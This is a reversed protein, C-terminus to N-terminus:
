RPDHEANDAAIWAKGRDVAEEVAAFLTAQAPVINEPGIRAALGSRELIRLLPPDAGALILRSDHADLREAIAEYAKVTTSSPVDPLARLSLVLVARRTDPGLRPWSENLRPVEAFLGVGAHFLVTVRRSPLETPVDCQRWRGGPEPELAVLRSVRAAQVCYLLLSLGAGLLIAQQLPLQTTALFTAIMAAASLPATRWVLAIDAARGTILEVGIVIVLGGIVPMPIQEALSGFLLVVVALSVGAFIGAWRTQAGASVAVGTRSLSGGTPLAQTLAGGMNAVGQAVFDRSVSTRSGDPNPVAAGIGAAQALAVLAVAFAGVALDPVASLDPAHPAPLANPISAIAGVLPVDLGSVAVLLTGVLLAILTGLARVAGFPRCALWVAITVAAVLVTPGDWSGVHLIGDGLKALTNHQDTEYGTADGIVGAVIQVAIGTTFGTM